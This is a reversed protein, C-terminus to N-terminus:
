GKEFLFNTCAFLEMTESYNKVEYLGDKVIRNVKYGYKDHLLEWFDRFYTRSDINAGGFEMQIFPIKGLLSEGGLLTSLENGEVDLKLFDIKSIENKQCYADLTTVKCEEVKDFVVNHSEMHRNYLSAAGSLEEDYFLKMVGESDSLALKNLTARDSKINAELAHYTALAPEFSHVHSNPFFDLLEETYGGVNAGVDFLTLEKERGLKNSIISLVTKEGDDIVAGEGINMGILSVKYLSHWFKQAKRKGLSGKFVFRFIGEKTM